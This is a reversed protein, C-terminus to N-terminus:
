VNTMGGAMMSTLEAIAQASALQMEQVMMTMEVGVKNLDHTKSEVVSGLYSVQEKLDGKGELKRQAQIESVAKHNFEIM